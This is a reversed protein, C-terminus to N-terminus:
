TFPLPLTGKFCKFLCHLFKLRPPLFLSLISGPSSGSQSPVLLGYMPPPTRNAKEQDRGRSEMEFSSVNTPTSATDETSIACIEEWHNPGTRRLGPTRCYARLRCTRFPTLSVQAASVPFSTSLLPSWDRLRLESDGFCRGAHRSSPDTAHGM